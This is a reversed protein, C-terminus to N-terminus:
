LLLFQIVTMVVLATLCTVVPLACAAYVARYAGQWYKQWIMWLSVILSLPVCIDIVILMIGIADTMHPNEFMGPALMFIYFSPFFLALYLISCIIGINRARKQISKSDREDM